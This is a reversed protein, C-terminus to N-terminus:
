RCGADGNTRKITHMNPMLCQDPLHDITGPQATYRRSHNRKVGLRHDQKFLQLTIKVDAAQCFTLHQHFRQANIIKQRKRKCVFQCGDTCISKKLHQFFSQSHQLQPHSFFKGKAVGAFASHFSYNRDTFRKIKSNMRDLPNLQIIRNNGRRPNPSRQSTPIQIICLTQQPPTKLQIPWDNMTSM